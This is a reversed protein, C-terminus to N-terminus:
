KPGPSVLCLEPNGLVWSGEGLDYHLRGRAIVTEGFAPGDCCL